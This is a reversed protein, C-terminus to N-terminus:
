GRRPNQTRDKALRIKLAIVLNELVPRDHERASKGFDDILNILAQIRRASLSLLIDKERAM